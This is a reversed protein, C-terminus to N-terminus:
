VALVEAVVSNTMAAEISNTENHLVFCCQGWTDARQYSAVLVMALETYLLVEALINHLTWGV